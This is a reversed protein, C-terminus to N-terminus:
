ASQNHSNRMYQSRTPVRRIPALNRDITPLPSLLASRSVQSYVPRRKNANSARPSSLPSSLPPSIIPPIIPRSLRPSRPSTPVQRQPGRILPQMSRKLLYNNLLEQDVPKNFIDNKDLNRIDDVYMVEDSLLWMMLQLLSVDNERLSELSIFPQYIPILIGNYKNVPDFTSQRDDLAFTNSLALGSSKEAKIMKLLPKQLIGAQDVCKERSYVIQPYGIDRFIFDVISDVYKKQGASWVTVVRFYSFCFILFERLHPRCVGWLHYITGDPNIDNLQLHYIRSKIDALGPDNELGLAAYKDLSHIGEEDYGDFSHVLTEDLDLVLCHDTLSNNNRYNLQRTM